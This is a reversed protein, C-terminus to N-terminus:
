LNFKNITQHSKLQNEAHILPQITESGFWSDWFVNEQLVFYYKFFLKRVKKGRIGEKGGNETKLIYILDKVDNKDNMDSKLLYLKKLNKVKKIRKPIFYIQIIKEIIIVEIRHLAM